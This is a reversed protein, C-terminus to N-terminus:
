VKLNEGDIGRREEEAEEGEMEEDEEDVDDESQGEGGEEEEDEDAEEEGEEDEEEEEEEETGEEDEDEDEEHGHEEGDEDAVDVMEVDEQEEQEEEEEEENDDDDHGVEVEVAEDGEEEDEEEGEEEEEDGEDDEDEDEDDEEEEEEEGEVEDEGDEIGEQEVGGEEIEEEEGAEEYGVGVEIEDEILEQTDDEEEEEEEAEEADEGGEEEEEKEEEEEELEEDVVEVGSGSDETGEEDGEDREGSVEDGRDVDEDGILRFRHTLNPFLLGPPVDDDYGEPVDSLDSEDDASDHISGTDHEEEEEEEDDGDEMRHDDDVDRRENGHVDEMEEDSDEGAERRVQADPGDDDEQGSGARSSRLAPTQSGRKASSISGGRSKAAGAGLKPMDLARLVAQEARRLIEPRRVGALRKARPVCTETKDVEMPTMAGATAGDREGNLPNLLGSFSMPARLEAQAVAELQAAVEKAHNREKIIAGPEQGPLTVAVDKYITTYCDNILDDIPAVKMLNGNLKKMEIADKMCEFAANPHRGDGGAWAAIRESMIEFEETWMNKFAEDTTVPVAYAARLLKVYATCSYQWLDAFHYFEAGKKRLRRLLLELDVRNSLIVLINTMFRVYQETFVHHRGPREADCKWVNMVMTKTFMSDKLLLFAARAAVIRDGSNEVLNDSTSEDFLIKAHRIVIRHQWNSKDKERLKTLNRIIYEEWDEPETFSAFHDDPKAVIGFPQEALISAADAAPIDGRTVLKHLISALKYHPELIPESNKTKRASQSVEISKKLIALLRSLTIRAKKDTRDLDDEPTQYMKWYCKGLMYPNKWNHPDRKMAMRFLRAALKWVKYQSMQDHVIKKFTSAGVDGIFYREQDSHKFPEMAFPERSSSYLRMGFKHYLDHLPDGDNARVQEHRSHSLALTYCHIANRQFKVLESRDKNMKDATWIVSEDLEYDFCEALRFWADWRDATFQLQLRLFTAGIRLDDTAGPTQRRNLDVGKFKTLAIMGLLFFWGHRALAAEPINVAVCDVSLSGSLAQYLRLPHIPKKLMETFNRLNHIMQATSKTQGITQQMHEITTKLESKLLDKMTMRTALIMIKEVLQMAQRKELKEYPCGHDEVEWVGVGLKLGYLDNLVQELHDEWTEINKMRLLEVRMSKLFIKNSAKCFKRLGLVRHVAALYVAADKEPTSSEMQSFGTKFLAFLLCWSRVQMDRLKNVLATFTSNNTPLTLTGLRSEDECLSAVHLITCLKAIAASSTKLHAEDIIDFATHHNLSMSLAQIILEDLSKLTRMFLNKRSEDPTRMYTDGEMNSMVMEISRLLCSFKKTPYNIAEYADGLRSWLFLRLETSSNLLFKWLDKMGQTANESIVKGNAGETPSLVSSESGELPENEKRTETAKDSGECASDNGDARGPVDQLGAPEGDFMFVSTPNLVPELTDIVAVPDMKEDQFLGIFFDMTTLKSLERDAAAPSILPMVVNNPLKVTEVHESTLFDRLSTWLLMIHERVPNDTLSTTMISAWMFRACLVDNQPVNQVQLYTSMTRLWRDLRYKTEVRTAYDVASSPNTIREYIDIHLEFIMPLVKRLVQLDEESKWPSELIGVIHKYLITDARNLMQVVAVKMTDSWKSTSYSESMVRVWAFAIDNSTMWEGCELVMKSFHSLGTQEDFPPVDDQDQSGSKTHELFSSLGLTAREESNLLVNAADESFNSVANRLDKAGNHTLKSTRDQQASCSDLLEQVYALTPADEVGLNELITKTLQFLIRDSEQFPQMQVSISTSADATDETLTAETRRRVRKSRKDAVNEDDVGEPLGAVSQSRKRISVSTASEPVDNEAGEKASEKSGTAPTEEKAEVPRAKNNARSGHRASRRVPQPEEVTQKVKDESKRKAESQRQPEATPELQPVPEITTNVVQEPPQSMNADAKAANLISRCAQLAGKTDQLCKMLEIGLECWSKVPGITYGDDTPPVKQRLSDAPTEPERLPPQAPSSPPPTLKSTHDPLFPIPDLQRKLLTSMERNKWPAMIPHSLSMEDSLLQLDEKLQQGALGEALSPPMVETIAPDDDLEVAAELCFRKIRRSNIAGAFRAMKRWLEPDSPDQDLAATWNDLVKDTDHIGYRLRVEQEWEPHAKCQDRLKDLFFQGHNKYSMYLAQSLSAAVGDAGGADVDLATAVGNIVTVDPRGEAYREAREYDTRAERYQFIESKFLERYASAAAHRSNQGQAHLKLAAQFRKLAEDVHLEKTTDIQEDENEEPELNIAQFGPTDSQPSAIAVHVRIQLM